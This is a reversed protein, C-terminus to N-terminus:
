VQFLFPRKKGKADSAFWIVEKGILEKIKKQEHPKKKAWWKLDGKSKEIKVIKKGTIRTYVNGFIQMKRTLQIASWNEKSRDM